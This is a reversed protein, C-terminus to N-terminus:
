ELSTARSVATRGVLSANSGDLWSMNFIKLFDDYNETKVQRWRGIFPEASAPLKPTLPAPLEILEAEEAPPTRNGGRPPTARDLCVHRMSNCSREPSFKTATRHSNPSQSNSSARAKGAPTGRTGDVVLFVREDDDPDDTFKALSRSEVARTAFLMLQHFVDSSPRRLAWERLRSALRSCCKPPYVALISLVLLTFIVALCVSVWWTRSVVISHTSDAKTSDVAAAAIESSRRRFRWHAGASM